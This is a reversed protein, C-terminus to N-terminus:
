INEVRVIKYNTRPDKALIKIASKLTAREIPELPSDTDEVIEELEGALSVAEQNIVERMLFGRLDQLHGRLKGCGNDGLHCFSEPRQDFQGNPQGYPCKEGNLWCAEPPPQIESEPLIEPAYEEERAYEEEVRSIINDGAWKRLLKLDELDPATEQPM